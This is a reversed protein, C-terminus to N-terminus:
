LAPRHDGLLKDGSFVYWIRAKKLTEQVTPEHSLGFRELDVLVGSGLDVIVPLGYKKGLRVLEEVSAEETFGQIRYNSTHVKLLAATNENIAREYDSIRTRNTCGTERLVAGSQEMVDPIRFRGGIEILEGRSVIVERGEALTKLILTM